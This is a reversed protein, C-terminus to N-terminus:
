STPGRESALRVFGSLRATGWGPREAKEMGRALGIGDWRMTQVSCGRPRNRPFAASQTGELSGVFILALRLRSAQPNM